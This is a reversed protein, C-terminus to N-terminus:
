VKKKAVWEALMTYPSEHNSEKPVGEEQVWYSPLPSGTLDLRVTTNLTYIDLGDYITINLVFSSANVPVVMAYRHLASSNIQNGDVTYNVIIEDYRHEAMAMVTVVTQNDVYDLIVNPIKALPPQGNDGMCGAFLAVVMIAAALVSGARM